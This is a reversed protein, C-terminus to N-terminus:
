KEESELNFREYILGVYKLFNLPDVCQDVEEKNGPIEQMEVM